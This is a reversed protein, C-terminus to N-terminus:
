RGARAGRLGQSWGPVDGAADAGAVGSDSVM